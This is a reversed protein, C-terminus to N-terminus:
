FDPHLYVQLHKTNVNNTVSSNTIHTSDIIHHTTTVYNLHYFYTYGCANSLFQLTRAYHFTMTDFIISSATDTKFLWQATDVVPSLSLAFTAQRGYNAIDMGSETLSVFTPFPPATDAFAAGPTPIHM